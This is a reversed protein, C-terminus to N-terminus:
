RFTYVLVVRIDKKPFHFSHPCSDFCVGKYQEPTIKHLVKKATPDLLITKATKDMPDNLYILLQRHKYDHDEHIPCDKDKTKFCLNINCRLLEETNIRNKVVFTKFIDIAYDSYDSRFTEGKEREEPRKLITHSLYKNGDEGVSRHNLYYPFNSSLFINNIFDKQEQRLFDKDEILNLM